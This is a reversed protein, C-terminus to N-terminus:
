LMERASSRACGAKEHAGAVRGQPQIRGARAAIRGSPRIRTAMRHIWHGWFM